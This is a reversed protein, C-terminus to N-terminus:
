IFAFIYTIIVIYQLTEFLIILKNAKHATEINLILIQGNKNSKLHPLPPAAIDEKKKEQTIIAM